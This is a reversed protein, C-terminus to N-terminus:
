ERGEKRARIVIRGGLPIASLQVNCGQGDGHQRACGIKSWYASPGENEIVFVGHSPQTKTPSTEKKSAMKAETIPQVMRGNQLGRFAPKALYNSSRVSRKRKDM